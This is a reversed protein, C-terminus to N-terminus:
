RWMSQICPRRNSNRPTHNGVKKEGEFNTRWRPCSIYMVGGKKRRPYYVDIQKVGNPLSKLSNFDYILDDGEKKGEITVWQPVSQVPLVNSLALAAASAFLLVAFKISRVQM